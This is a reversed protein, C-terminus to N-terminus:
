HYLDKESFVTSIYFEAYLFNLKLSSPLLPSQLFYYIQGESSILKFSEENGYESISIYQDNLYGNIWLFVKKSFYAFFSVLYSDM